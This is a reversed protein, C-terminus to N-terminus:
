WAVGADGTLKGRVDDVVSSTARWSLSMGCVAASMRLDSCSSWTIEGNDKHSDMSRPTVGVM